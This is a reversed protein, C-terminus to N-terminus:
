HESYHCFIYFQSQKLWILSYFYLQKIIHGHTIFSLHLRYPWIKNLLKQFNLDVFDAGSFERPNHCCVQYESFDLLFLPGLIMFHLAQNHNGSPHLSLCIGSRSFCFKFSNSILFSFELNSLM